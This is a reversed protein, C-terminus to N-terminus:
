LRVSPKVMLVDEVYARFPEAVSWAQSICGRSLHPADSDCIEGITGLGARKIWTTFFPEVIKQMAYERAAKEHGEAKLHATIFPGLLWPWITGNHYSRNRSARDGGYKGIFKPDSPSLTRLGYPTVLESNVLDVVRRWRDAYLIPYDLSIAFLQNPRISADVGHPELVDFLCGFSANWFKQNFSTRTKDAIEGYKVATEFDGFIVAISQMSRLANYWLAQIEVAKGARPTVAEGNIEADMWTLRPGHALLSDSDLHIGFSTGRRHADIITQMNRWLEARVFVRDGSYKLYQHVANIFWLTGDVTNYSAEGTRDAIYNPILGDRLLRNFSQLTNKADNFKGKMLLLGPLSVFSDRGWPEFWHYGALMAEDGTPSQVLFTDAAYLIWNLWDATSVEPHLRHFSGLSSEIQGMHASHCAKVEDLANGVSDLAQRAARIDLDSAAKVAFEKEEGAGLAVEFYGPQICDDGNPEGREAELRYLLGNVWNVSEHFEGDIAQSLITVQPQQFSTESVQSGSKQTFQLPKQSQVVVDHFHRCTMIPYLKLCAAKDGKNVTKYIIAVVNKGKPMFVTKEVTIPGVQYIWMPFPAVSFTDLYTYGQPFVCNAFENTGLRYVEDGVIVDEDVKSLCVTRDGPPHLAAVLLGHYKRTNVGLITSSAYGGIGNTVLWEKALAEDYRTLAEKTFTIASLNM